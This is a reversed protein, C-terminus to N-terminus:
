RMKWNTEPNKFTSLVTQVIVSRIDEKIIYHIAYPFRHVVAFRVHLYRIAHTFPNLMLLQIQDEFEIMFEIGLGAKQDNYYDIAKQLEEIAEPTFQVFWVVPM